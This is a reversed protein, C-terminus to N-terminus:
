AAKRRAAEIGAAGHYRFGQVSRLHGGMGTHEDRSGGYLRQSIQRWKPNRRLSVALAPHASHMITNVPKGIFGKGRLEREAVWELFKMGVGAGQWEPLVVMRCVRAERKSKGTVMGSIGIFCVGEGDISGEYATSYGMPGADPLYHHRKYKSKWPGWGTERITLEM